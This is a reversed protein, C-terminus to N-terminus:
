CYTMLSVPISGAEPKPHNGLSEYVGSSGKWLFYEVGDDTLIMLTNGLANLEYVEKDDLFVILNEANFTPTEGPTFNGIWYYYKRNVSQSNIEVTREWCVIYHTFGTNKHIFVVSWTEGSVISPLKFQLQPQQIPKMAEDEPVMGVVTALDGDPCEYDSPTESFGTYKIEKQMIYRYHITLLLRFLPATSRRQTTRRALPCVCCTALM